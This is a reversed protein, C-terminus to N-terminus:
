LQTNEGNMDFNHKGSKAFNHGSGKLQNFLAKHRQTKRLM